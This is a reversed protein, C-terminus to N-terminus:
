NEYWTKEYRAHMARVLVEGNQIAEAGFAALVIFPVAFLVVLLCTSRAVIARLKMFNRQTVSSNQTSAALAQMRLRAAPLYATLRGVYECWEADPGITKTRLAQIRWRISRTNGADRVLLLAAPEASINKQPTISRLNSECEISAGYPYRNAWGQRRRGLTGHFSKSNRRHGDHQHGTQDACPRKLMM